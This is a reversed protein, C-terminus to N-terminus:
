KKSQLAKNEKVKSRWMILDYAIPTANFVSSYTGIVVGLMLAFAFGRIVEGGFIFMALLVMFTIGSTNLTRSLTHNIADNMNTHLDRKPYMNTYERIRDFIIVTDMISYGIITLIAAIFHQDIDLTFPLIGYFLSFVSVVIFADHFLSVVGGLGWQWKRFRIAVYGFIILLSFFVAYYAKVLLSYAITPEVKQSSLKGLVKKESHSMFDERSISSTYFPKLGEFLKTEVISDAQISQNDILYSTTIKVQDSLGFTKVEPTTGFKKTLADRVDDTRVNKDFRVVYSRGGLFDIGYSLGRFSLSIVGIVMLSFSVIYFIKRLGIFDFNVKTLINKTINNWVDIKINKDMMWVFILKTIYIACFLSSLTGIILTTAFGQIPGSGFIYLVIGTLLTTINSDIIATLAHKYGDDIALRIGKGARIEERIREYIIVNKDVDMGITLVIGAIGPLTLVAGLSALIGFVFFMNTFLAVNAVMGARNYYFIMYLLTLAFAAVFSWVGANIAEKGLTPGVVAEEVIKAPAPLKGAKLINALDKGEEVTFTGSISSRGNPIEDNVKPYSYVFNDLVIAVQKGINEGTIRKWTRAGDNNMSMSVEVRGNQDYDQRADTIVDGGLPAIGERTTIKLAVLELVEPREPNPKVTWALKLDRPFVNKVVKILHNIHATDKIQAYGVAAGEGPFFQGKNDQYFAPTLYAFLPNDKAYQAFSKKGKATASTDAKGSDIKSLLSPKGKVTDKATQPQKKKDSPRTTKSIEKTVNATKATTDNVLTDKKATSDATYTLTGDSNVMSKLKKNAEEFFPALETFKYTEWFELKATGQMLKRVRQPDKIGPLEVLIRGATQLKQINPQTVGFRDIRTRLINFTRDIAGNSEDRIVKLVEVNTSNYNIRDRFEPSTFIAALKANPDVEAFAEGFLTVFDKTSNKERESALNLAKQFTPNTSNGSLARIIDIVSVELTINMGGKLDLGLNIEREKCEQYTYKRVLINYIVQSKMSDLYYNERALSVSDFLLMEKIADGKALKKAITKSTESIAYNRAKKEVNTTLFTFSLQFLCVLAFSIAFVKIAGKSRM